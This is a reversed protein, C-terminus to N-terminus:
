YDEYVEAWGEETPHPVLMHAVQNLGGTEGDHTRVIVTTGPRITELVGAPLEAIIIGGFLKGSYKIMLNDGDRIVETITHRHYGEPTSDPAHDTMGAM